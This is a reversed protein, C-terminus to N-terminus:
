HMKFAEHCSSSWPPAGWLSVIVGHCLSMPPVLEKNNTVTASLLDYSHFYYCCFCCWLRM